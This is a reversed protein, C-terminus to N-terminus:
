VGPGEVDGGDGSGKAEDAGSDGVGGGGEVPELDAAPTDSEGGAEGVPEPSSDSVPSIRIGRVDIKEGQDLLKNHEEVIRQEWAPDTEGHTRILKTEEGSRQKHFFYEIQEKIESM